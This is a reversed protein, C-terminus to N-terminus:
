RASSRTYLNLGLMILILLVAAALKEWTSLFLATVGFATGLLANLAIVQRQSWGLTLLRHHLHQDVRNGRTLSEGRAIRRIIVFVADTLPVGLVLFATAVKGGSAITLIGIMLGFFMAGSDGLVVRPPPIDFVFSGLAIAALVFSALALDPQQVRDSLSLCGIVTFAITSLLTVQGPVGDFWNLANIAMGLWVITFVASVIMPMGALLHISTDTGLFSGPLPNTIATIRVGAAILIIAVLGHVTLRLLPHLPHRDDAFSVLALLAIAEFIAEWHTSFPIWPLFFCFVIVGLIGSPYPLPARTLGYRTPFDLLKWRPFVRLALLHLSVTLVFALLPTSPLPTPM